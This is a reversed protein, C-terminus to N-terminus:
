ANPDFTDREQIIKQSGSTSSSRFGVGLATNWVENYCNQLNDIHELLGGVTENEFPSWVLIGEVDSVFFDEDIEESELIALQEAHTLNDGLHVLFYGAAKIRLDM